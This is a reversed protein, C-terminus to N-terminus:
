SCEISVWINIVVYELNELQRRLKGFYYTNLIDRDLHM